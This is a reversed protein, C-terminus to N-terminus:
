FPGPPKAVSSQKLVGGGMPPHVLIPDLRGRGFAPSFKKFPNKKTGHFKGECGLGALGPTYRGLWGAGIKWGWGLRGGPSPQFLQSAPLRGGLPPPTYRGSLLARSPLGFNTAMVARDDFGVCQHQPAKGYRRPLVLEKFPLIGDWLKPIKYPPFFVHIKSHLFTEM